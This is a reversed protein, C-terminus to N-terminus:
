SKKRFKRENISFRHHNSWIYVGVLFHFVYWVVQLDSTIAMSGKLITWANAFLFILGIMISFLSSVFRADHLGAEANEIDKKTLQRNSCAYLISDTVVGIYFALM